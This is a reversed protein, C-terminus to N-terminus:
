WYRSFLAWCWCCFIFSWKTVLLKMHHKWWLRWIVLVIINILTLYIFMCYNGLVNVEHSTLHKWCTSCLWQSVGPLMLIPQKYGQLWRSLVVSWCNGPCKVFVNSTVHLWHILPHWFLYSHISVVKEYRHRILMVRLIMVLYCENLFVNEAESVQPWDFVVFIVGFM